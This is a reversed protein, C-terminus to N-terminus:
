FPTKRNMPPFVRRQRARESRSEDSTVDFGSGVLPEPTSLDRESREREEASELAYLWSRAVPAFGLRAVYQRMWAVVERVDVHFQLRKAESLRGSSMRPLATITM